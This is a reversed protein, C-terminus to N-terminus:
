PLFEARKKEVLLEALSKELDVEVGSEFPGHVKLDKGIFQPIPNVIRIRTKEVNEETEEETEEVIKKGEALM